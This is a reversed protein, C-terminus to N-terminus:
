QNTNGTFPDTGFISSLSEGFVLSWSGTAHMFWDTLSTLSLEVTAPGVYGNSTITLTDPAKPDPAITSGNVRWEYSLSTDHPSVVHAFYPVATVKQQNGSVSASGVLARHYLTGFLPHNEYLEITPDTAAIRAEARAKYLTDASEAVVSITEDAFLAPGPFTVSSKGRGSAFLAADKYWSFIIDKEAIFSGSPKEFRALAQARITASTGARARGAYFPPVYSDSEWLLDMESPRIVAQAGGTIGDATEAVVEISTDSGLAGAKISVTVVGDGQAIVKGDAYWTIHSRNLDLGYSQISLDVMDGATPYQPSISLTLPRELGTLSFQASARPADALVFGVILALTWGSSFLLRMSHTM